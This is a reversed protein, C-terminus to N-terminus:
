PNMPRRPDPDGRDPCDRVSRYWSHAVPGAGCPGDSDVLDGAAADRRQEHTSTGDTEAETAPRQPGGRLVVKSVRIFTSLRRCNDVWEERDAEFPGRATSQPRLAWARALM